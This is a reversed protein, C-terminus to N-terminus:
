WINGAGPTYSASVVSNTVLTECQIAGSFKSVPADINVASANVKLETAFVTVKASARITIGGPELKVTNGSSDVIDIVLPRDSLMIRHGGPTELTLKKAPSDDFTITVGNRTGIVQPKASRAAKKAAPKAKPM